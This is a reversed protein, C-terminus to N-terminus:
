NRLLQYKIKRIKNSIQFNDICIHKYKIINFKIQLPIKVYNVFYSIIQYMIINKKIKKEELLNKLYENFLNKKNYDLYKICKVLEKNKKSKSFDIEDNKINILVQRFKTKEKKEITKISKFLEKKIIKKQKKVKVLIYKGSEIRQKINQHSFRM